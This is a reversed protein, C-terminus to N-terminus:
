NPVPWQQRCQSVSPECASGARVLNIACVVSAAGCANVRATQEYSQRQDLGAPVGSRCDLGPPGGGGEVLAAVIGNDRAINASEDVGLSSIKEAEHYATQANARMVVLARRLDSLCQQPSTAGVGAAAGGGGM